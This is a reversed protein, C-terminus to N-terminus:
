LALKYKELFYNLYKFDIEASFIYTSKNGRLEFNLELHKDNEWREKQDDLTHNRVILFRTTIKDTHDFIWELPQDSSIRRWSNDAMRDLNFYVSHLICDLYFEKTDPTNYYIDNYNNM